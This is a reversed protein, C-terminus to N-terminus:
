SGCGRRSLHRSSGSHGCRPVTNQSILIEGEYAFAEFRGSAHIRRWAAHRRGVLDSFGTSRRTTPFTADRGPRGRLREGRLFYLAGEM